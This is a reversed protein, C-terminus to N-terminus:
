LIQASPGFPLPRVTLALGEIEFAWARNPGAPLDM